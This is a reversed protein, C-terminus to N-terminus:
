QHQKQHAQYKIPVEDSEINRELNHPQLNTFEPGVSHCTPLNRALQQYIGFWCAPLNRVLM